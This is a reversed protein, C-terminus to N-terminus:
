KGSSSDLYKLFDRRSSTGHEIIEENGIFEQQTAEKYEPTSALQDVGIWVGNNKNKMKAKKLNM